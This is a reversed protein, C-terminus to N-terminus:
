NTLSIIKSYALHVALRQAYLLLRRISEDQKRRVGCVGVTYTMVYSVGPLIKSKPPYIHFIGASTISGDPIVSTLLQGRKLGPKRGALSDSMGHPSYISLHKDDIMYSM